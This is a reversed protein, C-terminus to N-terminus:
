LSGQGLGDFVLNFAALRRRGQRGEVLQLQNAILAFVNEVQHGMYQGELNVGHEIGVAREIGLPIFRCQAGQRLQWRLRIM